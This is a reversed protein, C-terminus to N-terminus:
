GNLTIAYSVLSGAILWMIIGILIDLIRWTIPRQFLPILLRAGYALSFFWITSTTIAGILFLGKQMPALTGAIGGMIVVTDLYVHPNLLTIALTLLVAKLATNNEQTKEVALNGNGKYASRFARFGYVLLFLAGVLALAVSAIPNASILTGLGFVGAGILVLDCLICTLAIWFTHQKLLGQKLVFANQAGIAIILGATVWFGYLFHEM